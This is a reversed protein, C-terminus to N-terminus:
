GEKLFSLAKSLNADYPAEIKYSQSGLTFRLQEAHLFLRTLGIKKALEKGSATGYKEDGLIAHNMHQAHVRIQHTRGTHICVNVLTAEQYRKLVRFDSVSPKGELDVEVIREQGRVIRRLPLDIRRNRGFAGELLAWYEKHVEGARWSAQLARLASRKKAVLLCGSTEKDLRHVLEWNQANPWYAKIVEILGVPSGSGGHVALGYPKNFAIFEATELLIQSPLQKAWFLCEGEAPLSEPEAVRIPPLRLVDGEVLRTSPDARKKNLRIEGARLLRYIRSKPVGKLIRFLFNDIRQDDYDAEITVFSVKEFM